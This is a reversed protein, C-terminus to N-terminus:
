KGGFNKQYATIKDSIETELADKQKMLKAYLKQAEESRVCGFENQLQTLLADREGQARDLARRKSQALDKLRLFEKLDFM